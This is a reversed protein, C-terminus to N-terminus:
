LKSTCIDRQCEAKLLKPHIGSISKSSWITTRNLFVHWRWKMCAYFSTLIGFCFVLWKQLTYLNWGILDCLCFFVSGTYSGLFGSKLITKQRNTKRTRMTATTIRKKTPKDIWPSLSGACQCIPFYTKHYSEWSNESTVANM